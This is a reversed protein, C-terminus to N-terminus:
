QDQSVIFTYSIPSNNSIEKHLIQISLKYLGPSNPVRYVKYGYSGAANHSPDFPGNHNIDWEFPLQAQFYPDDNVNEYNMPDVQIKAINASVDEFINRVIQSRAFYVRNKTNANSLSSIERVLTMISVVLITASILVEILTFGKNNKTM